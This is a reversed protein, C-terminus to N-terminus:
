VHSDGIDTIEVTTALVVAGKGSNCEDCAAALNDDDDSGGADRPIIHDVVLRIEPPRRGCYRCTFSDRQLIRFRRRPSLVGSQLSRPPMPDSAIEPVPRRASVRMAAATTRVRLKRRMRAAHDEVTRSSIGLREAIEKQTFGGRLLDLIELQRPSLTQLARSRAHGPM